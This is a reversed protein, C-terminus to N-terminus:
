PVDKACDMFRTKSIELKYKKKPFNAKDDINTQKSYDISQFDKPYIAFGLKFTLVNEGFFYPNCLKLNENLFIRYM